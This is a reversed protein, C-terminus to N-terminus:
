LGGQWLLGLARARAGYLQKYEVLTDLSIKNGGCVVIVMRTELSFDKVLTRLRGDDVLAASVGCAPEVISREDDAMRWCGM